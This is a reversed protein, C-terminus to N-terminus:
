YNTVLVEKSKSEKDRLQYNSNSYSRNLYNINFQNKICWEILLDHKYNKHRIVNSLAFRVGSNNCEELFFLLDMEDNETWGGNENYTADGLIYPPDLYLFANKKVLQEINLNRFDRCIFDIDKNQINIMFQKLKKRLRANLDRKGVPLNFDGASNFRIQNNFSYIVLLLFLIDPRETSKNYDDRLLLFHKKNYNGVGGGSNSKYYEYGNHYTDSLGYYSIRDELEKILDEYDIGKLYRLLSILEKNSDICHIEDAEINAGVNAGGCFVDYFCEVKNPFRAKLQNLLKYKGGTYNLPSPTDKIAYDNNAINQKGVECLFLREKHNDQSSKGTTFIGFDKEFVKVRGKRKLISMIDADTIKANSRDNSKNGTNNYSLLIYKADLNDILDKLKDTAKSTCYGSKLSDRNMKRAVGFVEPKTNQAVNELFHYADCYQRSNYPPDIYVLDAKVKKALENSDEKYISNTYRSAKIEPLLMELDASLNGKKRYADYHGVTNAIRDIAYLLSTILICKERLNIIGKEFKSDIDDRIHGVKRLNISSLYTDSFNVSYYNEEEVKLSNYKDIILAIKSWNVSQNSFFANYACYNSELIDNVIVACENVFSYGVVGTGAFLDAVTHVNECNEKVVEHIFQILKTKCGLYRRNSLRFTEM